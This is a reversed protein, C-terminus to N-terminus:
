ESYTSLMVQYQRNTEDRQSSSTEIVEFREHAGAQSLANEIAEQIGTDSFGTFDGIKKNNM